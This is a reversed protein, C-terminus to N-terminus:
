SSDLLLGVGSNTLEDKLVWFIDTDGRRRGAPAAKNESTSKERPVFTAATNGPTMTIDLLFFTQRKGLVLKKFAFFGKWLDKRIEKDLVLEYAEDCGVM